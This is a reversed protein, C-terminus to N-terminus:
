GMVANSNHENMSSKHHKSMDTVQAMAMHGLPSPKMEIRNELFLGQETWLYGMVHLGLFICIPVFLVRAMRVQQRLGWGSAEKNTAKRSQSGQKKGWEM